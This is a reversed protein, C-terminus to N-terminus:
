LLQGLGLFQKTLVWQLSIGLESMRDDASMRIGRLQRALAAAHTTKGSGPLGCVIILRSSDVM